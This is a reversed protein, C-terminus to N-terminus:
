LSGKAKTCSSSAEVLFACWSEVNTYVESGGCCVLVFCSCKTNPFVKFSLFDFSEGLWGSPVLLSMLKKKNQKGEKGERTVFLSGKEIPVEVLADLESAKVM